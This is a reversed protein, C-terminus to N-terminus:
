QADVLVSDKLETSDSDNDSETTEGSEITYSAQLGIVGYDTSCYVLGSVLSSLYSDDSADTSWTVKDSIDKTDDDSYNATVQFQRYGAGSSSCVYVDNSTNDGNDSSVPSIEISDLTVTEKCAVFVLFVCGLLILLSKM